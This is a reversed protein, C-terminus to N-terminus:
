SMSPMLHKASICIWYLASINTKIPVKGSKKLYGIM